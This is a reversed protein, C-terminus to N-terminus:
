TVHGEVIPNVIYTFSDSMRRALGMAMLRQLLRENNKTFETPDYFEERVCITAQDPGVVLRYRSYLVNLFDSEKMPKTVTVYVLNRLFQDSPAYRNRTTKFKSSLGCQVALSRVASGGASKYASAARKGLESHADALTISKLDDKLHFLVKARAKFIECQSSDDLDSDSLAATLEEDSKLLGQMYEEIAIAGLTENDDHSCLSARRVLNMRPALIECVLSPLDQQELVANATEFQYLLLHFALLPGLHAFTDTGPLRLRFLACVDAAMRDFAPHTEYPLYTGSKEDALDPANGSMLRCLLLNKPSAADFAAALHEAIERRLQENARSLMLYALEGTRTFLTHTREFGSNNRALSVEDYFAAPGIPYLLTYTWGRNSSIDLAINRLMVVVEVLSRFTEFRDRLYGYDRMSEQKAVAGDKMTKLWSVWAEDDSSSEQAIEEMNPNNFLLNRLQTSLYPVYKVHAPDHSLLKGQRHMGEAMSLFELLLGSAPQREIRHGWIAEAIWANHQSRSGTFPLINNEALIM